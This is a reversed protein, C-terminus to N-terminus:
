TVAKSMLYDDMVFGEGIEFVAEKEVSFGAKRYAAVAPGNRKNVQLWVASAGLARARDMVYDLLLGSHGKGQEERVLYLKNLKIRGDPELGYSMFGIGQGGSEILEWAVGKEM